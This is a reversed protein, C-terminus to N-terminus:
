LCYCTRLKCIGAKPYCYSKCQWNATCGVMEDPEPMVEASAPEPAVCPVLAAVLVAAALIGKLTKM